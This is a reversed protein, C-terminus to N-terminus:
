DDISTHNNLGLDTTSYKPIYGNQAVQRVMEVIGQLTRPWDYIPRAVLHQARARTLENLKSAGKVLTETKADASLLMAVLLIQRATTNLTVFVTLPINSDILNRYSQDMGLVFTGHAVAHDLGRPDTVLCCFSAPSGDLLFVQDPKTRSLQEFTSQLAPRFKFLRARRSLGNLDPLPRCM